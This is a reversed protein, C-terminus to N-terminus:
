PFIMDDCVMTCTFTLWCIAAAGLWSWLVDQKTDCPPVVSAAPEKFSNTSLDVRAGNKAPELAIELMDQAVPVTETVV